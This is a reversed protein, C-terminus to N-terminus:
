EVLSAGASAVVDELEPELRELEERLSDWVGPIPELNGVRALDKLKQAVEFAAEAAITGLNGALKHSYAAIRDIDGSSVAESLGEYTAPYEELFISIIEVYFSREGEVRDLATAVDIAPPKVIALKRDPDFDALQEITAYLEDAVFPKSIYADMGAALCRKRDSEMAHATLAVIPLHRDTGEEDKRIEATAGIGDLVPMQVDMLVVDFDDQLVADVAERGDSVAVANHGRKELLRVALMRNTPSDDVVLITLTPRRERLWHRTIMEEGVQDASMNAAARLVDGLEAPALPRPIYGRVGLARFKAADGRVGMAPAVIVPIEIALDDTLIARCLEEEGSECAVVVADPVPGNIGSEIDSVLAQPDDFALPLARTARLVAALNRRVSADKSLVAVLMQGEERRDRSAVDRALLLNLKATFHFTSGHGSQSELWMRGDMLEVIQKSIALGLGTGGHKRTISGDAQAFADFIHDRKDEPIGIGTDEVSFHLTVGGGDLAEVRAAVVIQGVNTFKIANGVLNFLVQRMRGPDGIVADPVDEAISQELSLGKEAARVGMTRLTDGITDRLSFLVAELEMKGAEIKSLDLIDNVLSVLGDVSRRTTELYEYQESSLDTGLALETMGLIANMPTRIEHSMNALFQSKAATAAEAAEMAKRVEEEAERRLTIDRAAIQIERVESTEPDRIPRSASEVWIASGDKRYLQHVIEQVGDGALVARFHDALDEISEAPALDQIRSGVLESPERGLLTRASPSVYRWVGSPDARVILDSANEALLRYREENKRLERETRKRETIERSTLVWAGVAPDDVLNTARSEFEVWPGTATARSRHEISLTSEGPATDNAAELVRGIDDPHMLNVANTGIVEEAPVGLADEVSPSIWTIEGTRGMTWIVDSVNQLMADSQRQTKDLRRRVEEVNSLDTISVVARALGERSPPCSWKLYGQMPTGDLRAGSVECQASYEGKWVARVTAAFSPRAAPVVTAPDLHGLLQERSSARMMRLAADNVDVVEILSASYDILEPHRELHSDLDTVGAARLEDLWVAIRSFDQRWLSVPARHFLLRHDAAALDMTETIRTASAAVGAFVLVQVTMAGATVTAGAAQALPIQVLWVVGLWAIYGVRYRRVFLWSIGSYAALGALAIGLLPGETAPATILLGAALIAALAPAHPRDRQVQWAAALAALGTAIALGAFAIDGTLTALTASSVVAAIAAAALLRVFALETSTSPRFHVSVDGEDSIHAAAEYTM